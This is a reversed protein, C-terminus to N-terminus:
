FPSFDSVAAILSSLQLTGFVDLVDVPYEEQFECASPPPNDNALGADGLSSFWHLYADTMADTQGEFAENLRHVVDWRKRTDVCRKKSTTEICHEVLEYFKGGEHSLNIPNTGDLVGDIDM